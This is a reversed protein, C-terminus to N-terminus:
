KAVVSLLRERIKRKWDPGAIEGDTFNSTARAQKEKRGGKKKHRKHGSVTLGGPGTGSAHGDVRLITAM